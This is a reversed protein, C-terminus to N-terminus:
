FNSNCMKTLFFGFIHIDNVNNSELFPYNQLWLFILPELWKLTWIKSDNIYFKSGNAGSM